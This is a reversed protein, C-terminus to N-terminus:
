DSSTPSYSLQSLAENAILLDHTRIGDRGGFNLPGCSVSIREVFFSFVVSHRTPIRCTPPVFGSAGVVRELTISKLPPGSNHRAVPGLDDIVLLDDSRKDVQLLASGLGSCRHSFEFKWRPLLWILIRQQFEIWLFEVKAVPTGLLTNKLKKVPFLFALRTKSTSSM